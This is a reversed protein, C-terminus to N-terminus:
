PASACRPITRSGRAPSSAPRRPSFRGSAVCTRPLGWWRCCSASTARPRSASCRACSRASSTRTCSAGACRGAASRPTRRTPRGAPRRRTPALDFTRITLRGPRVSALAERYAAVHEVEDPVPRTPDYLFETRYLGVGSAGRVMAAKVELPFEINGLLTVAHGDLTESSLHSEALLSAEGAAFAAAKERAAVLADGDPEVVVSGTTGDVWVDVGPPIAALAGVVGVVCPIGLAKAIIATHSTVGGHELVLGAVRGGALSAADSPTLDEAVLVVDGSGEASPPAANALGALARLLRREVDLVDQRREAFMPDAISALRNAYRSLVTATAHDASAGRRISEEIEPRVADLLIRHVEFISGVKPDISLARQAEELGRTASRVARALREIEHPVAESPVFAPGSAFAVAELHVARGVRSGASAAVGRLRRM